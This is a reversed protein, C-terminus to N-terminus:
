RFSRKGPKKPKFEPKDNSQWDFGKPPARRAGGATAKNKHRKLELKEQQTKPTLESLKLDVMACLSNVDTEEMEVWRGVKAKSPLFVPGFRVRKLRNVKVGQSEWLRRVERNRGEMLCVYFWRNIGEGGGDVIDTFKAVGDDLIIGKKLAALNEDTVEGMVRVLYERDIETSPHMLRNALEGDTTFLLLGSTNIDLRGVAIWREGRLKPLKDFVTPRGEPDKRTCVEGEPKNYIIVRRNEGAETAIISYGDITITDKVSVRDGLTAVEGNVLVRGERIRTEMERRSGQGARALVKQLKEDM